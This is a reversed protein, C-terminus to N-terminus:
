PVFEVRVERVRDGLGHYTAHYRDGARAEVPPTLSGLSLWDGAELTIGRRNAEKVLWLVVNLPDGMLDKGSSETKAEGDNRTLTMAFAALDGMTLGTAPLAEGMVGLWAGSNVATAIPGTLPQGPKIIVDPVELFPAVRDIGRFAEAPTRAQNIRRDGVRVLLDGEILLHVGGAVSIRAGDDLIMGELLVGMVPQKLNFRKQAAASTLGAKYGFVVGYQPRLAAVVDDQIRVAEEQGLGTDTDIATHHRYADLIRDVWASDAYSPVSLAIGLLVVLFRVKM